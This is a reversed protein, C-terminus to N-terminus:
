PKVGRYTKRYVKIFGSVDAKIGEKYAKRGYFSLMGLFRECRAWDKQPLAKKYSIGMGRFRQTKRGLEKVRMHVSSTSIGTAAGLQKLTMKEMNAKVFDLKEPTWVIKPM